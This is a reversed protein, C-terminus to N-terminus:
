ASKKIGLMRRVQAATFGGEVKYQAWSREIIEMLRPNASLGSLDLDMGKMAVLAAVPKGRSTLIVPGKRIGKAYKAIPETAENVELLKM